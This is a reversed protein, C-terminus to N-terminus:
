NVQDWWLFASLSSLIKGNEHVPTSGNKLPPAKESSARSPWNETPRIVLARPNERPVFVADAKPTNPTDEDDCFFPVQM